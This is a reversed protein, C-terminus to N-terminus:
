HKNRAGDKKDMEKAERDRKEHEKLEEACETIQFSTYDGGAMPGGGSNIEQHRKYKRLSSSPTGRRLRFNTNSHASERKVDTM